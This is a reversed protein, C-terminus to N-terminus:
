IGEIKNGGMYEKAKKYDEETDIDFNEMSDLIMVETIREPNEKIISRAGQDGEIKLMTQFFDKSFLVPNGRKGNYIPLVINKPSKYFSQILLNITNPNLFPQDGLIFLIGEVCNKLAKVTEKVSASQGEQYKPNYILEVKKEKSIRKFEEEEHGYVVVIKDVQSSKVGDIVHELITQNGLSMLLKNKGFRKSMGSALIVGAIM